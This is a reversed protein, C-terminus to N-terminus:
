RRAPDDDSEPIEPREQAGTGSVMTVDFSGTRAANIKQVWDHSDSALFTEERGDELRLMVTARTVIRGTAALLIESLPIFLEHPDMEPRSKFILRQNTLWLKGGHEGTDRVRDAVGEKIVQERPSFDFTLESM